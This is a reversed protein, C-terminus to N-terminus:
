ADNGEKQAAMARLIAAQGDDSHMWETLREPGLEAVATPVSVALRGGETFGEPWSTPVFEFGGLPDLDVTQAPHQQEDWWKGFKEWADGSALWNYFPARAMLNHSFGLILNRGSMFGVVPPKETDFGGPEPKHGDRPEEDHWWHGGGDFSVLLGGCEKCRQAEAM